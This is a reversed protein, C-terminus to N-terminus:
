KQLRPSPERTVELCPGAAGATGAEGTEDEHQSPARFDDSGVEGAVAAVAEALGEATNAM